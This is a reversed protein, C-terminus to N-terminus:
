FLSSYVRTSIELFYSLKKLAKVTVSLLFDLYHLSVMITHHSRYSRKIAFKRSLTVTFSNLFVILSRNFYGGSYSLKSKQGGQIDGQFINLNICFKMNVHKYIIPKVTIAITFDTAFL